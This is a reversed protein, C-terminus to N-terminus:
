GVKKLEIHFDALEGDPKKGKGVLKVTGVGKAYYTTLKSKSSGNMSKDPSGSVTITVSSEVVICDFTGAQVTVKEEKTAKNESVLTRKIGQATITAKSEWTKGVAFDAPLELAPEEFQGISSGTTSVGKDSLEVTDTGMLALGGTRDVLYTAVGDKVSQLESTQTGDSEMAGPAIKGTYTLMRTEGLGSYDWAASKLADPLEIKAPTTEATKTQKESTDTTKAKPANCGVAVVFLALLGINRIAKM